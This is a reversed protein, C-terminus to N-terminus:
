SGRREESGLMGLNGAGGRLSQVRRGHERVDMIEKELGCM